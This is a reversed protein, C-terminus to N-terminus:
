MWHIWSRGALAKALMPKGTGPPGHLLVGSIYKGGMKKFEDPENLLHLWETMLKVLNPQGWYQDLTVTKPDGPRIVTTRTRSIFWFLAVFQVVMFVVAFGLQLGLQILLFAAEIAVDGYVIYAVVLVGLLWLILTRITKHRGIFRWIYLGIALKGAIWERM